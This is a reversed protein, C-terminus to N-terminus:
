SPDAAGRYVAGLMVTSAAVAIRPNPFQERPERRLTVPNM